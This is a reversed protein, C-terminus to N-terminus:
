TENVLVGCALMVTQEPKAGARNSGRQHSRGDGNQHIRDGCDMDFFIRGQRQHELGLAAAVPQQVHVLAVEGQAAGFRERADGVHLHAVVGVVPEREALRAPDVQAFHIEHERALIRREIRLEEVVRHHQLQGLLGAHADDVIRAAQAIRVLLQKRQMKWLAYRRRDDRAVGGLDAAEDGLM